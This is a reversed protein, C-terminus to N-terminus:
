NRFIGRGTSPLKKTDVVLKAAFEPDGTMAMAFWYLEEMETMENQLAV